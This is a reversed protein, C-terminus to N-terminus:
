WTEDYEIPNVALENLLELALRISTQIHALEQPKIDDGGCKRFQIGVTLKVHAKRKMYDAITNRRITYRLYSEFGDEDQFQMRDATMKLGYKWGLEKLTKWAEKESMM